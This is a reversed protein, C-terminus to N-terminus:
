VRDGNVVVDEPQVVLCGDDDQDGERQHHSRALVDAVRDVADDFAHRAIHHVRVAPDVRREGDRVPQCRLLDADVHRMRADTQLALAVADLVVLVVLPHAEHEEELRQEEVDM